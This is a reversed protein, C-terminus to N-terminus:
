LGIRALFSVQWTSLAPWYDFTAVFALAYLTASTELRLGLETTPAFQIPLGAGVALSPVVVLGWSALEVQPTLLVQRQLDTDLALSVLVSEGLGLEYGVRGRFGQDVTGGLALFPGGHRLLRERSGRVLEIGIRNPSERQPTEYVYAQAGDGHLAGVGTWGPPLRVTVRTPGVSAFRLDDARVWVLGRRAINWPTSFLPHRAHLPDVPDVPSPIGSGTGAYSTRLRLTARLTVPTTGRAPVLVSVPRLTPLEPLPTDHVRLTAPAEFPWSLVIAASTPEDGEHRLEWAVALECRLENEGEQGQECSLDVRESAIAVPTRMAARLAGARDSQAIASATPWAFM